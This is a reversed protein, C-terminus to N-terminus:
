IREERDGVFLDTEGGFVFPFVSLNSEGGAAILVEYLRRLASKSDGAMINEFILGPLGNFNLVLFIDFSAAGIKSM